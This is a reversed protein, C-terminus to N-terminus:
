DSQAQTLVSEPATRPAQPIDAPKPIGLNGWTLISKWTRLNENKFAISWLLWLLKMNRFGIDRGYISWDTVRGVTTGLLAALEEVTMVHLLNQVMRKRIAPGPALAKGMKLMVYTANPDVIRGVIEFRKRQLTKKINGM